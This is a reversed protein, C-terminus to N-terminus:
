HTNKLYSRIYLLEALFFTKWSFRVPFYHSLNFVWCTSQCVIFFDSISDNIFFYISLYFEQLQWMRLIMRCLIFNYNLIMLHSLRVFYHCHTVYQQHNYFLYIQIIYIIKNLYCLFWSLEIVYFNQKCQSATTGIMQVKKKKDKISLQRMPM